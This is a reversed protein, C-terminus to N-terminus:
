AGETPDTEDGDGFFTSLKISNADEVTAEPNDRRLIILALAQLDKAGPNGLEAPGKGTMEEFLVLEGVTMDDLDFKVNTTDTSSM